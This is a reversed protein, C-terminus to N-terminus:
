ARKLKELRLRGVVPLSCFCFRIRRPCCRPLRKRKTLHCAHQASRTPRTAPRSQPGQSRQSLIERLVCRGFNARSACHRTRTNTALQHSLSLSLCVSVCAKSVEVNSNDSACRLLASGVGGVKGLSTCITADWNCISQFGLM